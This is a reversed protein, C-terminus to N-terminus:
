PWLNLPIKSPADVPERHASTSLFYIGGYSLSIIMRSDFLEHVDRNCITGLFSLLSQREFPSQWRNYM